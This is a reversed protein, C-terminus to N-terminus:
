LNDIQKDIFILMKKLKAAFFISFIKPVTESETHPLSTDGRRQQTHWDLGEWGTSPAHFPKYSITKSGM